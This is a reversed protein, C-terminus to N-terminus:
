NLLDKLKQFIRHIFTIHTFVIKTTTCVYNCFRYTHVLDVLVLFIECLFKYLVILDNFLMVIIYECISIYDWIIFKEDFVM